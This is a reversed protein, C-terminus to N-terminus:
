NEDSHFYSYKGGVANANANSEQSPNRFADTVSYCTYGGGGGTKVPYTVVDPMEYNCTCERFVGAIPKPKLAYHFGFLGIGPNNQYTPRAVCYDGCQELLGQGNEDLTVATEFKRNAGGDPQCEGSGVWFYDSGGQSVFWSTPM